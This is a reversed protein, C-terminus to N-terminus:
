RLPPLLAVVNSDGELGAITFTPLMTGTNLSSNDLIIHAHGGANSGQVDIGYSGVYADFLGMNLSMLRAPITAKM